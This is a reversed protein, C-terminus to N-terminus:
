KGGRVSLFLASGCLDICLLGNVGYLALGGFCFSLGKFIIPGVLPKRCTVHVVKFSFSSSCLSSFYYHMEGACQDSPNCMARVCVSKMPVQEQLYSSHCCLAAHRALVCLVAVIHRRLSKEEAVCSM